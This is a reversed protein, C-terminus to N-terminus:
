NPWLDRNDIEFVPAADFSRHNQDNAKTEISDLKTAKLGACASVGHRSRSPVSLM